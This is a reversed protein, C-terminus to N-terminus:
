IIRREQLDGCDPCFVTEYYRDYCPDFGGLETRASVRYRNKHWCTKGLRDIETRAQKGREVLSLLFVARNPLTQVQSM